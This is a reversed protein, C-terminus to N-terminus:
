VFVACLDGAKLLRAFKIMKEDIFLPEISRLALPQWRMAGLVRRWRYAVIICPGGCLMCKGRLAFQLRIDPVQRDETCFESADDGYKGREHVQQLRWNTYVCIAFRVHFHERKRAHPIIWRRLRTAACYQAVSFVFLFIVVFFSWNTSVRTGVLAAGIRMHYMRNAICTEECVTVDNRSSTQTRWLTDRAHTSNARAYHFCVYMYTYIYYVHIYDEVSLGTSIKSPIIRKLICRTNRFIPTAYARGGTTVNNISIIFSLSLYSM